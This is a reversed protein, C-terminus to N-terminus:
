QTRFKLNSCRRMDTSPFNTGGTCKTRDICGHALTLFGKRRMKLLPETLILSNTTDMTLLTDGLAGIKMKMCLNEMKGVTTITLNTYQMITNSKKLSMM